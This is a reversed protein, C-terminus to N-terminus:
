KGGVGVTLGAFANFRPADSGIGPRIGGDIRMRKNVKYTLAGLVYIGRPQREDVTNGWTEVIASFNNPLQREYSLIVQAGSARRESDDRGVNLYAFNVTFDNDGFTRNLLFRVNHDIRGSGLGRSESAAPLKISYSMGLGLREHPKDRFVAKFGLNVDGVGTERVGSADLSSIITEFELDLRLRDSVGFFIGSPGGQRNRFDPSRFDFEGGYEFQLVGKKPSAVSESVGPRTPAILAEDEQAIVTTTLILGALLLTAAKIM